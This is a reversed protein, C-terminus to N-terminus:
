ITMGLVYVGSEPNSRFCHHITLSINHISGNHIKLNVSPLTTIASMATLSATELHIQYYSVSSPLIETWVAYTISIIEIENLLFSIGIIIYYKAIVYKLLM